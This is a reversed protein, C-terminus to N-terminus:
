FLFKLIKFKYFIYQRIEFIYQRIWITKNWFYKNKFDLEGRKVEAVVLVPVMRDGQQNQSTSCTKDTSDGGAVQHEEM